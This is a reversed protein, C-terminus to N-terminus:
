AWKNVLREGFEIEGVREGTGSGWWSRGANVRSGWGPAPDSHVVGPLPVVPALRQLAHTPSM